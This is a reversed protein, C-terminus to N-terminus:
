PDTHAGPLPRAAVPLKLQAGRRTTRSVQNSGTLICGCIVFAVTGALLVWLAADVEM